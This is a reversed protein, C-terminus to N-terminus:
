RELHWQEVNVVRFRGDREAFTVRLLANAQFRKTRVDIRLLPVLIEDGKPVAKYGGTTIEEPRGELVYQRVYGEIRERSFAGSGRYDDALAALIGKAADEGGERALDVLRAVEDEVREADTKVLADIALWIGIALLLAVLVTRWV